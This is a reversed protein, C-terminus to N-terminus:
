FPIEEDKANMNAAILLMVAEKLEALYDKDSYSVYPFWESKSGDPFKKEKQPFAFWREGKASEFYKCELIKQGHPHIVLNFSAKLPGNSNAVARWNHIEVKIAM